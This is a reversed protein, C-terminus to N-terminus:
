FCYFQKTKTFTFQLKLLIRVDPRGTSVFILLGTVFQAVANRVVDVSLKDSTRTGGVPVVTMEVVANATSKRGPAHRM